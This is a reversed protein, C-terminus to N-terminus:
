RNVRKVATITMECFRLPIERELYDWRGETATTFDCTANLTVDSELKTIVKDAIDSLITEADQAVDTRYFLTILFSFQRRNAATDNPINKHGINRVTACPYDKLEKPIHNYVAVLDAPQLEQLKSVLANRISVYSM